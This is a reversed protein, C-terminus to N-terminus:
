EREGKKRKCGIWWWFAGGIYLTVALIEPALVWTWSHDCLGLKKLIVLIVTLVETFVM